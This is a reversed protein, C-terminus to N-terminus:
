LLEMLQKQKKMITKPKKIKQAKLMKLEKRKRIRNKNIRENEEEFFLNNRKFPNNRLKSYLIPFKEKDIEIKQHKLIATVVVGSDKSVIVNVGNISDTYNWCGYSLKKNGKKITNEIMNLSIHREKMRELAHQSYLRRYSIMTNEKEKEKEDEYKGNISYLKYTKIMKGTLQKQKIFQEEQRGLLELRNIKLTKKEMILTDMEKELKKHICNLRFLYEKLEITKKYSAEILEEKIRSQKILLQRKKKQIESRKKKIDYKKKLQSKLQGSLEKKTSTLSVQEEELQHLIGKIENKNQRKLKRKEKKKDSSTNKPHLNNKNERNQNNNLKKVNRSSFNKNLETLISRKEQLEKKYERLQDNQLFYKTLLDMKMFHLQDRRSILQNERSNLVNLPILTNKRFLYESYQFNEGTGLLKQKQKQLLKKKDHLELQKKQLKDQIIKIVDNEKKNEKELKEFINNLINKEEDSFTITIDKGQVEDIKKLDIENEKVKGESLTLVNESIEKISQDNKNKKITEKKNEYEKIKKLLENRRENLGKLQNKRKLLTKKNKKVVTNKEKLLEKKQQFLETRKQEWLSNKEKDIKKSITNLEDRIKNIRETLQNQVRLMEQEDKEILKEERDIKKSLKEEKRLLSKLYKIESETESSEKEEKRLLSHHYKIESETGSSGKEEIKITNGIVQESPTNLEKKLIEQLVMEETKNLSLLKNYDAKTEDNDKKIAQEMQNMLKKIKKKSVGEITENKKKEEKDDKIISIIKEMIKNIKKKEDIKEKEEEKEKEIIRNIMAILLRKKQKLKDKLTGDLKGEETVWILKKILEFNETSFLLKIEIIKLKDINKMILRNLHEEEKMINTYQLWISLKSWEKKRTKIFLLKDNVESQKNTIKIEENKTQKNKETLVFTRGELWNIRKKLNELQLIVYPDVRETEKKISPKTLNQINEDNKSSHFGINKSKSNM